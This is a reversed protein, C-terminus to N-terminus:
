SIEEKNEEKCCGKHKGGRLLGIMMLGMMIPCIFSSLGSLVVSTGPNINFFPIIAIILIPLLCCMGMMGIHKIPNHSKINSDATDKSKKQFLM